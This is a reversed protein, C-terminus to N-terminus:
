TITHYELWPISWSSKAVVVQRCFSRVFLSWLGLLRCGEGSSVVKLVVRGNRDIPLLDVISRVGDLVNDGVCIVNRIPTLSIEEIASIRWGRHHDQCLHIGYPSLYLESDAYEALYKSDEPSM